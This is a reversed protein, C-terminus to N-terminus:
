PNVKINLMSIKIKHVKSKIFKSKIVMIEIMNVVIVVLAMVGLNFQVFREYVILSILLVFLKTLVWSSLQETRTNEFDLLGISATASIRMTKRAMVGLNFQVFREYVILSIFLIFLKTLVWSSLRETRTDEFDLLGISATALSLWETPRYYSYKKQNEIFCAGEHFFSSALLFSVCICLKDEM